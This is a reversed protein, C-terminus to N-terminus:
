HGLFGGWLSSPDWPPISGRGDAIGPLCKEAAAAGWSRMEEQCFDIVPLLLEMRQLFHQPLKGLLVILDELVDDPVQVLVYRPEQSVPLLVGVGGQGQQLVLVPARRQLQIANLCDPPPGASM